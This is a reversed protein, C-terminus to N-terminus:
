HHASCARRPSIWDGLRGGGIMAKVTDPEEARELGGLRPSVSSVKLAFAYLVWGLAKCIEGGFRSLIGSDSSRPIRCRPKRQMM